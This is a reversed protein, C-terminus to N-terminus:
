ESSIHCLLKVIGDNFIRLDEPDVTQIGMGIM